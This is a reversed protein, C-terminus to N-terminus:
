LKDGVIFVLDGNHNYIKKLVRVNSKQHEYESPSLAILVNHVGGAMKKLDIYDLEHEGAGWSTGGFLYKGFGYWHGNKQYQSPDYKSYYLVYMYPKWYHGSIIIKGYKNQVPFVYQLLEKYGDAFDASTGRASPGYYLYLYKSFFGIVICLLCMVFIIRWKGQLLFFIWAVGLGTILQPIPLVNLIRLAHPNPVSIAAPIPALLMWSLVVWKAKKPLKWFVVYLGVLVFPFEWLYLMGMGSTSQRGQPDGKTFLFDWSFNAFYGQVIMEAYIVRRNDIIKNMFTPHKELDVSASYVAQQANDFVSVQNARISGQPTALAKYMPFSVILFFLVALFVTKKKQLLEKHFIILLAILILPAFVVISRYFYVSVAFLFMSFFLLTIKKKRLAVLFIIIGGIVFPTGINAEFETRSYQIAWPAIALFFVILLSIPTRYKQLIGTGKEELLLLENVLFFTLVVDSIGAFASTFRTAFENLGFLAIPIVSLYINAPMKYDDYSRFLIPMFTGYEDRGTKLISYSNYSFAAEDWYISVPVETIRYFRLFAALFVLLFLCLQVWYTKIFVNIKM